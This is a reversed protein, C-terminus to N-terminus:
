GWVRMPYPQPDISFPMLPEADEGAIVRVNVFWGEYAVPEPPNEPDVIEQPEYIIGITDINTYRPVEYFGTVVDDEISTVIRQMLVSNAQEESEFKLYMDM